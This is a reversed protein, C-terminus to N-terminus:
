AIQARRSLHTGLALFFASRTLKRKRQNSPFLFFPIIFRSSTTQQIFPFLAQHLRFPITFYRIHSARRPQSQSEFFGLRNHHATKHHPLIHLTCHATKTHAASYHLPLTRQCAPLISPYCRALAAFRVQSAMISQHARSAQHHPLIAPLSCFCPPSTRSVLIVGPIRRAAEPYAATANERHSSQHRLM